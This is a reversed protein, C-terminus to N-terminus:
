RDDWREELTTLRIEHETLRSAHEHVQGRLGTDHTGIDQEVRKMREEMRAQKVTIAVWSGLSTGLITLAFRLWEDM